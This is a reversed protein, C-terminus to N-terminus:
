NRPGISLTKGSTKILANVQGLPLIDGAHVGIVNCKGLPQGPLNFKQFAMGIHIQNPRPRNGETFIPAHYAQKGKRLTMVFDTRAWPVVNGQGVRGPHASGLPKSPIPVGNWFVVSGLVLFQQDPCRM